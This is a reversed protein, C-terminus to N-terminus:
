VSARERAADFLRGWERRFISLVNVVPESVRFAIMLDSGIAPFTYVEEEPKLRRSQSRVFEDTGWHRLHEFWGEVLRRDEAGLSSVAIQASNTLQVTLLNDAM